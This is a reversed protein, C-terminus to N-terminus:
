ISMDPIYVGVESSVTVDTVQSQYALADLLDDHVGVPFSIMEEELDKCRNEVHFISGAAYRPLLGRIRVEKQTLNHKLEVIPLFRNRKRQESDLYPKLGELYATKEIGISTYHFQEHLSFIADVLEEPGIKNRWARIHWFNEQNVSNDVFATYDAQTKKSMATDITLFRKCNMMGIQYEAITRIWEPRFEQNATLVPSGQYLAAWDYPGITKKIDILNEFTYRSPWLPDNIGRYPYEEKEALAPLHIVKTRKALDPNNLILGVLDGTHWRTHMVIVVGHPELRTFATSTFWDWTKKRYVESEAEERNKIPDDIVVYRAGRGTIPGGVGVAIYGGGQKTRWHGRAQEDERLSVEPFIAQFQPSVMKERTKGGFDQALDASYSSVIIEAEPNRGLLWAPFDISVQQSKGHRPPETIILIKYDRDGFAELHELEKAILNHHWNPVYKDNTAIEFDILNKRAQQAVM